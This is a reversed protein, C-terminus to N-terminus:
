LFGRRRLGPIIEARDWSTEDRFSFRRRITVSPTKNSSTQFPDPQPRRMQDLVAM